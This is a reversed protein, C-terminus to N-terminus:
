MGGPLSCCSRTSRRARPTTCTRSSPSGDAQRRDQLLATSRLHGLSGELAQGLAPHALTSALVGARTCLSSFPSATAHLISNSCAYMHCTSSSHSRCGLFRWVPKSNVVEALEQFSLHPSAPVLRHQLDLDLTISSIDPVFM